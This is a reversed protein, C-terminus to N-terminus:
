SKLALITISQLSQRIPARHLRAGMSDPHTPAAHLRRDSSQHQAEHTKTSHWLRPNPVQSQLELRVRQGLAAKPLWITKATARLTEQDPAARLRQTRAPQDRITTEACPDDGARTRPIYLRAWGRTPGSYTSTKHATHSAGLRWHRASEAPPM